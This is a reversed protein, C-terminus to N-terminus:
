LANLLQKMRDSIILGDFKRDLSYFDCKEIADKTLNYDDKDKYLISSRYLIRECLALIGAYTNFSFQESKNLEILRCLYDFIDRTLHHKHIDTLSLYLNSSELHYNRNQYKDFLRKFQHRRRSSLRCYKSLYNM